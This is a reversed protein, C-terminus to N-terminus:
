VIPADSVRPQSPLAPASVAVWALRHWRLADGRLGRESKEPLPAEKGPPLGPVSMVGHRRAKKALREERASSARSLGSPSRPLGDASSRAGNISRRAASSSSLVIHAGEKARDWAMLAGRCALAILDWPRPVRERKRLANLAVVTYVVVLVIMVFACIPGAYISHVLEKCAGNEYCKTFTDTSNCTEYSYFVGDDFFASPKYAATTCASKNVYCWESTCFDPPQDDNLEVKSHPECFPPRDVDYPKCGQWGYSAEYEYKKDYIVAIQPASLIQILCQCGERGTNASVDAM